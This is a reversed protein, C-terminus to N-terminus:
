RACGAAAKPWATRRGPWCRPTMPTTSSWCGGARHRGNLREWILDAADGHKLEDDPVGLRRGVARMGAELAGPGAASVWWVRVGAQGATFAAELALRDDERVRGARSVVHVGAALPWDALAALAEDRGRVPRSVDRLGIPPEVSM